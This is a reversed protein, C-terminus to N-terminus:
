HCASDVPFIITSIFVQSFQSVAQYYKDNEEGRKCVCVCVCATLWDVFQKINNIQSTSSLSSLFFNKRPNKWNSLQYTAQRLQQKFPAQSLSKLWRKATWLVSLFSFTSSPPSPPPAAYVCACSFVLYRRVFKEKKWSFIMEAVDHGFLVMNWAKQHCFFMM